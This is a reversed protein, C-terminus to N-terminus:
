RGERTGCPVSLSSARRIGIIRTVIALALIGGIVNPIVVVLNETGAGSLAWVSRSAVDCTFMRLDIGRVEFESIARLKIYQNGLGYTSQIVSSAAALVGLTVMLTEFDM